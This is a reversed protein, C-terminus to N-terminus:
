IPGNHRGIHNYGVERNYSTSRASHNTLHGLPFDIPHIQPLNISTNPIISIAYLCPLILFSVGKVSKLVVLCVKQSLFGLEESKGEKRSGLILALRSCALSKEEDIAM